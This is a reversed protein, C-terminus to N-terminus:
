QLRAHNEAEFCRGVELIWCGVLTWNGRASSRERKIYLVKEKRNWLKSGLKFCFSTQEELFSPLVQSLQHTEASVTLEASLM